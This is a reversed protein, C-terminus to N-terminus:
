KKQLVWFVYFDYKYQQNGINLKPTAFFTLFVPFLFNPNTVFKYIENRIERKISENAQNTLAKQYLFSQRCRVLTHATLSQPVTEQGGVHFNSRAVVSSNGSFGKHCICKTVPEHKKESNTQGITNTETRQSLLEKANKRKAKHPQCFHLHAVM